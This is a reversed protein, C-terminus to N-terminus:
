NTLRVVVAGSEDRQKGAILAALEEFAEPAREFPVVMGVKPMYQGMIPLELIDRSDQGSPDIDAGGPMLHIYNIAKKDKKVFARRLAHLGSKVQPGAAVHDTDDGIITVFSGQTRLTRRAADYIRRGGVTDFIFDFGSEHQGNIMAVPDDAIVEKAGNEWADEEASMVDLPVQAIVHIGNNSLEQAVLSGVGEHANLILARSGRALGSCARHATVGHLPLCALQELSLHSGFPTRAIRRRECIIYEALTGSKKIDVLGMVLDGKSIVRVDAGVDLARGCFSRGPIWKGVGSGNAAKEMVLESDFRDLAVAYVQVLVQSDSIKSPPPQHSSFSVPPPIDGRLHAPTPTENRYFATRSSRGSLSVSSPSLTITSMTSQPMGLSRHDIKHSSKFPDGPKYAGTPLVLSTYGSKSEDLGDAGLLPVPEGQASMIDLGSGRAIKVSQRTHKAVDVETMSETGTASPAYRSGPRSQRAADYQVPEDGNESPSQSTPVSYSPQSGYMRSPSPGLRFKALSTMSYHGSLREPGFSDYSSSKRSHSRSVPRDPFTEQAAMEPLFTLTTSPISYAPEISMRRSVSGYVPSPATTMGISTPSAPRSIRPIPSSSRHTTFLPMSSRRDRTANFVGVGVSSPQSYESISSVVSAARSSAKVPIHASNELAMIWRQAKPDWKLYHPSNPNAPVPMSAISPPRSPDTSLSTTRQIRVSPDEKGPLPPPPMSGMSGVHKPRSPSRPPVPPVPMLGSTPSSSESPMLKPIPIRIPTELVLPDSLRIQNPPPVMSPEESEPSDVFVDEDENEDEEDHDQGHFHFHRKEVEQYPTPPQVSVIPPALLATVQSQTITPSHSEASGYISSGSASDPTGSRPYATIVDSALIEQPKQSRKMLEEATLSPRYKGPKMPSTAFRGDLGPYTTPSRPPTELLDPRRQDTGRFGNPLSTSTVPASIESTPPSVLSSQEIFKLNEPDSQPPTLQEIIGYEPSKIGLQPLEIQGELSIPAQIQRSTSRQRQEEGPDRVAVLGVVNEEQIRGM